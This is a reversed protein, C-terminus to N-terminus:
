STNTQTNKKFSALKFYNKCKSLTPSGQCDLGNKFTYTILKILM